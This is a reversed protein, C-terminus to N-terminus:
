DVFIHKHVPSNAMSIHDNEGVLVIHDLLVLNIQKLVQRLVITSAIDDSSPYSVGEPHNHALVIATANCEMAASVLDKINFSASQLNGECLVKWQLVNCDNDLCMASVWERDADKYRDFLFNVCDETSEIKVASEERSNYIEVVKLFNKIFVATKKGVGPVKVLDNTSANLVSYLSGFRKILNHAMDNTNKRPISSYLIMELLEHESFGQAKSVIFRDRMRERHGDHIGSKSKLSLEEKINM